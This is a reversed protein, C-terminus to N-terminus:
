QNGARRHQLVHTLEHALVHSHPDDVEATSVQDGLVIDSGVTYARAGLARASRQASPGDHLRVDDLAEGFSAEMVVRVGSPLPVSNLYVGDEVASETRIAGASPAHVPIRSFDHGLHPSAAGTLGASVEETDAQLM